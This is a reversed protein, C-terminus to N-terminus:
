KQGSDEESDKESSSAVGLRQDVENLVALAQVQGQTWQNFGLPILEPDFGDGAGGHERPCIV